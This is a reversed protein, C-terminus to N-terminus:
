ESFLLDLLWFLCKETSELQNEKIKSITAPKVDTSVLDTDSSWFVYLVCLLKYKIDGVDCGGAETAATREGICLNATPAIAAVAFLFGAGCDVAEFDDSPWLTWAGVDASTSFNWGIWLFKLRDLSTDALRSFYWCVCFSLPLLLLLLLLNLEAVVDDADVITGDAAPPAILGTNGDGAAITAPGDSPCPLESALKSWLENSSNYLSGIYKPVSFEVVIVVCIPALAWKGHTIWWM